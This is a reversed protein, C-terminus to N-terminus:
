QPDRDYIQPSIRFYLATALIKNLPPNDVQARMFRGNGRISGIEFLVEVTLLKALEGGHQIELERVFISRFADIGHDFSYAM